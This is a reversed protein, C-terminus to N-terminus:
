NGLLEQFIEVWESDSKSEGIGNARKYMLTMINRLGKNLFYEHHSVVENDKEGIQSSFRSDLVFNLFPLINFFLDFRFFRFINLAKGNGLLLQALDLLDSEHSNWNMFEEIKKVSNGAAGKFVVLNDMGKDDIHKMLESHEIRNKIKEIDNIQSFILKKSKKLNKTRENALYDSIHNNLIIYNNLLTPDLKGEIKKTPYSMESKPGSSPEFQSPELENVMLRQKRRNKMKEKDRISKHFYRELRKKYKTAGEGKSMKIKKRKHMYDRNVSPEEISSVSGLKLRDREKREGASALKLLAKAIGKFASESMASKLKSIRKAKQTFRKEFETRSGRRSNAISSLRDKSTTYKSKSLGPSLSGFLSTKSGPASVKIQPKVLASFFNFKKQSKKESQKSVSISLNKEARRSPTDAIVSLKKKSPSRQANFLASLFSASMQLLEKKKKKHLNDTKKRNAKVYEIEKKKQEHMRLRMIEKHYMDKMDKGESTGLFLSQFFYEATLYDIDLALNNDGSFFTLIQFRM